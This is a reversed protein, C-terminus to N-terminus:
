NHITYNFFQRILEVNSNTGNEFNVFYNTQWSQTIEVQKNTAIDWITYIEIGRNGGKSTQYIIGKETFVM